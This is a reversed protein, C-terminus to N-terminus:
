FLVDETLPASYVKPTKVRSVFAEKMAARDLNDSKFGNTFDGYKGKEVTYKEGWNNNIFQSFEVAMQRDDTLGHWVCKQEDTVVERNKSYTVRYFDEAPYYYLISYANQVNEPPCWSKLINELTLDDKSAWFNLAGPGTRKGFKIVHNKFAKAELDNTVSHSWITQIPGLGHQGPNSTPKASHHVRFYGSGEFYSLFVNIM